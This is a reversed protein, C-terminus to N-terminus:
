CMAKWVKYHQSTDPYLDLAQSYLRQQQVLQLCESFHESGCLSINKLASNYRKLHKDITYHQYHTQMKRLDNLFPLYEKPDQLLQILTRENMCEFIM